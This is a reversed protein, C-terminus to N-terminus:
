ADITWSHRDLVYNGTLTWPGHKTAYKEFNRKRRKARKIMTDFEDQTPHPDKGLMQKSEELCEPCDEGPDYEGHDTCYGYPEDDDFMEPELYPDYGTEARIAEKFAEGHKDLTGAIVYRCVRIKNGGADTPVSVVDRPNVHVELLTDGYGAAYGHTGVHLGTSCSAGPDHAVESRPMEVIDGVDQLIYGTVVEDNVIARGSSTSQYPKDEGFTSAVGKYGVIDGEQTITFNLANLWDYLQTRSHENPNDQVKEFFHVLPLWDQVGEELFRIIQTTLANDILDGDFFVNGNAVTIRESIRDFKRAAAASVDFLDVISEDGDIAGEVLKDWNPHSSDAVMPQYGTIYVTLYTNEDHKILSYQFM